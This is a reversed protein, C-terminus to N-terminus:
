RCRRRADSQLGATRHEPRATLRTIALWLALGIGRSRRLSVAQKEGRVYRTIITDDGPYNEPAVATLQAQVCLWHGDQRVYTDTYATMGTTEQGSMRLTHKNTARVLATDGFM